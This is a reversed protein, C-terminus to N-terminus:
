RRRYQFRLASIFALKTAITTAVIGVAQPISVMVMVSCVATYIKSTAVVGAAQPISIVILHRICAGDYSPNCYCRGNATNFGQVSSIVIVFLTSTTVVGVAQPISVNISQRSNSFPKCCTAIVGVAQPIRRLTHSLLPAFRRHPGRM